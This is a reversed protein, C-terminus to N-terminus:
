PAQRNTLTRSALEQEVASTMAEVPAAIGTFHEFQAAAQHVLMPIGNQFRLGRDAAADLLRTREPHYILECVVADARVEAVDFAIASRHDTDAMGLPTANIVIDARGLSDGDAVVGVTGALSAAIHAKDASRNVVAVSAAGSEALARIVAKAAGGAGVVACHMGTPDVGLGSRLGNVFGEGDTNDGVIAGDRWFVCNVAGLAQAADTLDDCAAVVDHKHPMTVSLGYWDFLRMADVADAARGLAVPLAVYVGDVGTAAFAANHILPSLSHRVPSGIVAALRTTASIM